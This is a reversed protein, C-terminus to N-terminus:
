EAKIYAQYISTDSVMTERASTQTGPEALQLRVFRKRLSQTLSFEGHGRSYDPRGGDLHAKLLATLVM